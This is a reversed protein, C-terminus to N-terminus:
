HIGRIGSWTQESIDLQEYGTHFVYLERELAGHHLQIYDRMATVSDPFTAVVSLQELIRKGEESRAKTAEVLLWQHPYHSRIEEWKM